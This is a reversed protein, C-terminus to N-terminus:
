SNPTPSEAATPLPPPEATDPERTASPEATAAATTPAGPTDTPPPEETPPPPRTSTPRRTAGACPQCETPTEPAPALRTTPHPGEVKEEFKPPAVALTLAPEHVTVTIDRRGVKGARDVWRLRYTTTVSPCVEEEGESSVPQDDLTVQRAGVVRWRLHVCAGSDVALADATFM